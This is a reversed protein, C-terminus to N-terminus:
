KKKTVVNEYFKRAEEQGAMQPTQSGRYGKGGLRELEQAPADLDEQGIDSRAGEVGIQSSSALVLM